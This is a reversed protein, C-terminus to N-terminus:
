IFILVKINKLNEQARVFNADMKYEGIFLILQEGFPQLIKAVIRTKGESIKENDVVRFKGEALRASLLTKLAM